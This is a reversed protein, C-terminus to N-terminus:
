ECSYERGERRRTFAASRALRTSKSSLREGAATSRGKGMEQGWWRALTTCGTVPQFSHDPGAERDCPLPELRFLLPDESLRGRGNCLPRSGQRTRAVWAPGLPAALLSRQH